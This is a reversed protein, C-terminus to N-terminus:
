LDAVLAALVAAEGTPAEPPLRALLDTALRRADDRTLTLRSPWTPAHLELLQPDTPHPHVSFAM